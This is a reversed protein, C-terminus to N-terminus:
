YLTAFSALVGVLDILWFGGFVCGIIAALRGRDGTDRIDRLARLGLFVSVSGVYPVFGVVLAAVATGSTQGSASVPAPSRASGAAFEQLPSGRVAEVTWGGGDWWRLRTAPDDYWGATPPGPLPPGPHPPGHLLVRTENPKPPPAGGDARPEASASLVHEPTPRPSGLPPGWIAGSWWRVHGARGPEVYWGPEPLM